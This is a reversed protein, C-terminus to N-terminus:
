TDKRQVPTTPDPQCRDGEHVEIDPLSWTKFGLIRGRGRYKVHVPSMRQMAADFYRRDYRDPRLRNFDSFSGQGGLEKLDALIMEREFEELYVRSKKLRGFGRRRWWRRRRSRGAMVPTRM